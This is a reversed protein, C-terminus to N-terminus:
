ATSKNWIQPAPSDERLRSTEIKLKKKEYQLITSKCLHTTELTHCLLKTICKETKSGKRM